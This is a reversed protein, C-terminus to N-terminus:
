PTVEDLLFIFRQVGHRTLGDDDLFNEESQLHCDVYTAGAVTLPNRHLASYSAQQMQKVEKQGRYRSWQHLTVVHDGDLVDDVNFPTVLGEGIVVYPFDADQPTHDHVSASLAALAPWSALRSKISQQLEWARM